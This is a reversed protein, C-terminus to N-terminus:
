VAMVDPAFMGEQCGALLDPDGHYVCKGSCAFFPNCASMSRVLSRSDAVSRLEGLSDGAATASGDELLVENSLIVANDVLVLGSASPISMWQLALALAFIMFGKVGVPRVHLSFESTVRSSFIVADGPSCEASFQPEVEPM